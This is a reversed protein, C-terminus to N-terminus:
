KKEVGVHHDVYNRAVLMHAAFEKPDMILVERKILAKFKAQTKPDAALRNGRIDQALRGVLELNSKMNRAQESSIRGVAHGITSVTRSGWTKAQAELKDFAASKGDSVIVQHIQPRSVSPGHVPM